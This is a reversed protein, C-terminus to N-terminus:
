HLLPFDALPLPRNGGKRFELFRNMIVWSRTITETVLTSPIFARDGHRPGTSIDTVYERYDREINLNTQFIPWAQKRDTTPVMLVRLGEIARACNVPAFHPWTIGAILDNLAMFIAPESVVLKWVDEVQGGTPALNFATCLPALQPMQSVLFQEAGDPKIFTDLWITLGWGNAFCFIDIAARALDIARMHLHPLDDDQYRNVQCEVSVKSDQIQVTFDMVLGLSVEEWHAAPLDRVTIKIAEASPLVRGTFYVIPM